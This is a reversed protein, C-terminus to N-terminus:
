GRQVDQLLSAFEKQLLEPVAGLVIDTCRLLRAQQQRLHNEHNRAVHQQLRRKVNWLYNENDFSGTLCFTNYNTISIRWAIHLFSLPNYETNVWTSDHVVHVVSVVFVAKGNVKVPDSEWSAPMLQFIDNLLLLDSTTVSKEVFLMKISFSLHDLIQGVTSLSKLQGRVM